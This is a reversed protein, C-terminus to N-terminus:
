SRRPWTFSYSCARFSSDCRLCCVGESRLLLREWQSAPASSLAEDKPMALKDHDGIGNPFSSTLCLLTVFFIRSQTAATRSLTM